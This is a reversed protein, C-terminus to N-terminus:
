GNGNELVYKYANIAGQVVSWDKGSYEEQENELDKIKQKIKEEGMELSNELAKKMYKKRKNYFDNGNVEIRDIVKQIEEKSRM